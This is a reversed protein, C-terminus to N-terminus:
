RFNLKKVTKRKTSVSTQSANTPQQKQVEQRKNNPSLIDSLEEVTVRPTSRTIPPKTKTFAQQQIKPSAINSLHVSQRTPVFAGIAKGLFNLKNSSLFIPNIDTEEIQDLVSSIKEEHVLEHSLSSLNVNPITNDETAVSYMFLCREFKDGVILYYNKVNSNKVFIGNIDYNSHCLLGINKQSLLSCLASIQRQNEELLQIDLDCSPRLIRVGYIIDYSITELKIKSDIEMELYNEEVVESEEINLPFTKEGVKLGILSDNKDILKMTKGCVKGLNQVVNVPTHHCVCVNCFNLNFDEIVPSNLIEFQLTTNNNIKLKLIKSNDVLIHKLSFFIEKRLYIIDDFITVFRCNPFNSVLERFDRDNDLDQEFDHVVKIFNIDINDTYFCAFHNRLQEHSFYFQPHFCFYIVQNSIYNTDSMQESTVKYISSLAYSVIDQISNNELVNLTELIRQKMNSLAKFFTPLHLAQLPYIINLNRDKEILICSCSIDKKLLTFQISWVKLSEILNNLVDKSFQSYNSYLIDNYSFDFVLFVNHKSVKNIEESNNGFLLHQQTSM